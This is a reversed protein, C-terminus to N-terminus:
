IIIQESSVKEKAQSIWGGWWNPTPTTPSKDIKDVEPTSTPSKKQQTTTEKQEMKDRNWHSNILLHIYKLQFAVKVSLFIIFRLRQRLQFDKFCM